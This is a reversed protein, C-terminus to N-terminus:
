RLTSSGFSPQLDELQGWYLIAILGVTFVTLAVLLKRLREASVSVFM